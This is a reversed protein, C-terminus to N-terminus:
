PSGRGFRCCGAAGGIWRFLIFLHMAERLRWCFITRKSACRSGLVVFSPLAVEGSVVVVGGGVVVVVVVVVAAVVVVVVAVARMLM